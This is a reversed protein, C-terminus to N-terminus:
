NFIMLIKNAWLTNNTFHYNTYDSVLHLSHANPQWQTDIEPLVRGRGVETRISYSQVLLRCTSVNSLTSDYLTQADKTIHERPQNPWKM